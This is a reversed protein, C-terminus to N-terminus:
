AASVSDAPAEAAAEMPAEAANGAAAPAPADSAKAADDDGAAAKAESSPPPPSSGAAGADETANEKPPSSREGAAVADDLVPDKPRTAEEAADPAASAAAAPPTTAAPAEEAAAMPADSAAPAAAKMSSLLEEDEIDTEMLETEGCSNEGDDQEMAQAKPARVAPEADEGGAPASHSPPYWESHWYAWPPPRPRGGSMRRPAPPRTPPASPRTTTPVDEDEAHWEPARPRPKPLEQKPTLATMKDKITVLIVQLQDRAKESTEPNSIKAMVKKLQDTLGHLLIKRREELEGAKKRTELAKGIELHKNGIVQSNGDGAHSGDQAISDATAAAAPAAALAPAAESSVATGGQSPPVTSAGEPADASPAEHPGRQGAKSRWPRLGISPDGLVPYRLAEKANDARSFTVIAEHRHHNIQMAQVPGFQLFYGNLMDMNNVSPPIREAM